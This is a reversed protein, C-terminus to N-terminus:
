YKREQPQYNTITVPKYKLKIGKDTKYAFTHKLWKIDDRKAHDTRWHAGRCEQRELAGLVIVESYELLNGLEIIEM